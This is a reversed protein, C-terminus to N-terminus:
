LKKDSCLKLIGHYSSSLNDLDQIKNVNPFKNIYLLELVSLKNSDTEIDLIEANEFDFSHQFQMMHQAIASTRCIDDMKAEIDEEESSSDSIWIIDSDNKSQVRDILVEMKRAACQHQSIRKKLHQETKGVYVKGCDKCRICYIVNSQQWKPTKDKLKRYISNLTKRTRFAISLNEIESELNRAIRESLGPIFHISM